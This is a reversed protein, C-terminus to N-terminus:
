DPEKDRAKEAGIQSSQRKVIHQILSEESSLGINIFDIRALYRNEGSEQAPDCAIVLGVAKVLENTPKLQIKLELQQGASFYQACQFAVGCASINVQVLEQAIDQHRVFAPNLDAALFDLKRNLLVLANAVSANSQWLIDLAKDLEDNLTKVVRSAEIEIHNVAEQYDTGGNAGVLRYSLGVRDNIRFYRRREAKDM